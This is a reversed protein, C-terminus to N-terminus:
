NGRQTDSFHKLYPCDAVHMGNPKFCFPCVAKEDHKLYDFVENLLSNAKDRQETLEAVMKALETEPYLADYVNGFTKVGFVDFADERKGRYFRPM